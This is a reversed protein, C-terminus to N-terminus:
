RATRRDVGKRDRNPALCPVAMRLCTSPCLSDNECPCGGLASTEGICHAPQSLRRSGALESDAERVARDGPEPWVKPADSQLSELVQIVRLPRLQEAEDSLSALVENLWTLRTSEPLKLFEEPNQRAFRDISRVRHPKDFYERALESDPVGDVLTQSLYASLLGIVGAIEAQVAARMDWTSDGVAWCRDPQVGLRSAALLLLDPAPKAREVHSGDVIEPKRSLGLAALMEGIGPLARPARNLRDFAAGAAKDITETEEESLSRGAAGAVERALRKGDMGIMPAIVDPSADMGAAVLAEVWGEIRASVTDVLTGDLDFILGGPRSLPHAM